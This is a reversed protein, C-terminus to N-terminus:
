GLIYLMFFENYNQIFLMLLLIQFLIFIPDYMRIGIAFEHCQRPIIYTNTHFANILRYTEPVNAWAASLLFFEVPVAGTILSDGALFGLTHFDTLKIGNLKICLIGARM